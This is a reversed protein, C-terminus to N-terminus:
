LAKCNVCCKWKIMECAELVSLITILETKIVFIYLNLSNSHYGPCPWFTSSSVESGSKIVVSLPHKRKCRKCRKPKVSLLGFGPSLGCYIIWMGCETNVILHCRCLLIFFFFFLFVTIWITWSFATGKVGCDKGM